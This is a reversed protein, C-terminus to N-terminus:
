SADEGTVARFGRGFHEPCHAIIPIRDDRTEGAVERRCAATSCISLSTPLSSSIRSERIAITFSIRAFTM